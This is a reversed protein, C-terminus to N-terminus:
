NMGGTFDSLQRLGTMGVHIIQGSVISAHPTVVLIGTQTVRALPTGQYIVMIGLQSVRANLSFSSNNYHNSIQTATLAINYLAVHQIYGPFYASRGGGQNAEGIAFPQGSNLISGSLSLTFPIGANIYLKATTGDYTGVIHYWTNVTLTSGVLIYQTSGIGLQLQIKNTNDILLTYNAYPNSNSLYSTGAIARWNSNLLTPYIWAEISLASTPHLSTATPSEVYSSSGNFFTSPGLLSGGYLDKLLTTANHTGDNTSKHDYATTNPDDLPWYSVLSLESLIIDLYSKSTTGKIYHLYIQSLTLATNYVAVSSINGSFYSDLANPNRGITLQSTTSLSPTRSSILAVSGDIYLTAITGSLTLIVHHWSGNAVSISTSFWSGDSVWGSLHGTAGDQSIGLVFGPFPSSNTYKAVIYSAVSSSTKIWAELTFNTLHLNTNDAVSVYGTSGDLTISRDIRNNPATQDLTYGGNYTGVNSSRLDIASTGSKERLPWYSVLSSEALVVNDFDSALLSSLYHGLIQNASLTVNYLAVGQITGNFYQSGTQPSRGITLVNTSFTATQSGTTQLIGDVYISATTGSHTGVVHHWRGDAINTNGYIWNNGTSFSVAGTHASDANIVLGYGNYPSSSDWKGFIIQVSATTTKVWAEMTIPTSIRLLTSDAVQVYGTSGNFSTGNSQNSLAPQSQTYGGNYTGNNNNVRDLTTANTDNLPWYAVPYDNLIAKNYDSPYGTLYHNLISSASLCSNYIACNALLGNYYASGQLGLQLNNLTASLGTKGQTGILFGDYYMYRTTGDWCAVIHHWNGDNIPYPVPYIADGAGLWWWNSLGGNEVLLGNSQNSSLTGYYILAFPSSSINVSSPINVWAELTYLGSTPLTTVPTGVNIYGTSGNLSISNTSLESPIPNKSLTYGGTYTGNNSGKSDTATTGSTENLRWFSVLSSETLIATSYNSM